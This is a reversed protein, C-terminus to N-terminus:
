QVGGHVQQDHLWADFSTDIAENLAQKMAERDPLAPAMAQLTVPLMLIAILDTPLGHHKAVAQILCAQQKWCSEAIPQLEPPPSKM